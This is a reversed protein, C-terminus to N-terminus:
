LEFDKKKFDNNFKLNKITYVGGLKYDGKKDPGYSKRITSLYVGEIVEYELTMKLIPDNVGFAPLSFFFQDVLHTKPNFYLIFIDNQDKKTQESEYTLGVKDYVIGNMGETGLYKSITAPDDLKYMMAFWFFNAERLFKAKSVAEDELVPEDKLTISSKGDILAQKVVGEEKPLTNVVHKEYSAWSHEGDFIYRETSLDIGKSKNDYIYTFSVNKKLILTNYGGNVNELAEILVKSKSDIKQAFLNISFLFLLSLIFTKRKTSIAKRM